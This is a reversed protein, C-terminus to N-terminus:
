DKVVFLTKDTWFREYRRDISVIDNLYFLESGLVGLIQANYLQLTYKWLVDNVAPIDNQRLFYM